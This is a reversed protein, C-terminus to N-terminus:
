RPRQTPGRGWTHGVAGVWPVTGWLHGPPPELSWQLLGRASSGGGKCPSLLSSPSAISDGLCPRLCGWGSAVGVGLASGLFPVKESWTEPWARTSHPHHTLRPARLEASIVSSRPEFVTDNFWNLISAAVHRDGTPPSPTVTLRSGVQSQVRQLLWRASALHHGIWPLGSIGSELPHAWSGRAQVHTRAPGSFTGPLHPGSPLGAWAARWAGM